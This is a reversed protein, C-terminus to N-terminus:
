YMAKNTIDMWYDINSWCGEEERMRRGEEKRMRRGEEKEKGEEKKKRREEKKRGCTYRSSEVRKTPTHNEV